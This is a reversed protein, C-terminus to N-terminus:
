LMAGGAGWGRLRSGRGVSAVVRLGAVRSSAAVTRLSGAKSSRLSIAERRVMTSLRSCRVAADAARAGIQRLLEGLEVGLEELLLDGVFDGVADDIIDAGFEGDILKGVGIEDAVAEGLLEFLHEGGVEVAGDCSGVGADAAAADAEDAGGADAFRGGDGFERGGEFEPLFLLDAEDGDVGVADGGDILEAGVGVDNAHRQFDDERGGFERGGHLFHGVTIGNEDVGGAAGVGVLEFKILEGLEDGGALGRFDMEDEGAGGCLFRHFGGDFFEAGEAGADFAILDDKCFQILCYGEAYKQVDGAGRAPREGVDGRALVHGVVDFHSLSSPERFKNQAFFELRHPGPGRAPPLNRCVSLLSQFHGHNIM